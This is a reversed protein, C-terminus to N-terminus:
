HLSFVKNYLAVVEDFREAMAPENVSFKVGEPITYNAHLGPRAPTRGLRSLITQGEESLLYDIFLAGANPHPARSAIALPLVNVTTPRPATWDVPAGKLKLEEVSEPRANILVSFEGAALLNALLTNGSRFQIDQASLRKMFGLGKERGLVKLIGDFWIYQKDDMGMKGRWRPHLLEEYDKPAEGRKVLSTNFGIVNLQLYAAVWHGNPDRFSEPYFKGEASLNKATLGKKTLLYLTFANGQIVDAFTRGAQAENIVRQLLAASRTTYSKPTVFPYKKRFGELVAQIDPVNMSTYVMVTGEQKAGEIIEQTPASAAASAGLGVWQVFTMALAVAAPVSASVRCFVLLLSLVVM